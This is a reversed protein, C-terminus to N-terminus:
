LGPSAHELLVLGRPRLLQLLGHRAIVDVVKVINGRVSLQQNADMLCIGHCLKVKHDLLQAKDDLVVFVSNSTRQLRLMLM